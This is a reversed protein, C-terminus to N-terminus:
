PDTKDTSSTRLGNVPHCCRDPPPPAPGPGACSQMQFGVWRSLIHCFLVYTDSCTVYMYTGRIYLNMFEHVHIYMNHVHVHHFANTHVIYMCTWSYINIYTAYVYMHMFAYIQIHITCVREHIYIYKYTCPVYVNMFIYLQIYMNCVRRYRSLKVVVSWKGDPGILRAVM